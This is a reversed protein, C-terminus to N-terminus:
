LDHLLAGTSSRPMSFPRPELMSGIGRVVSVGLAIPCAPTRTAQFRPPLTGHLSGYRYDLRYYFRLVTLIREATHALNGRRHTTLRPDTSGLAVSLLDNGFPFGALIGACRLYVTVYPPKPRM